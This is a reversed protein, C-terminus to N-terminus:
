ESKSVNKEKYKTVSCEEQGAWRLIRQPNWREAQGERLGKVGVTVRGRMKDVGKAETVM